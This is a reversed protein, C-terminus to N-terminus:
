MGGDTSDLALPSPLMKVDHAIRPWTKTVALAAAEKLLTAIDAGVCSYGKTLKAMSHLAM